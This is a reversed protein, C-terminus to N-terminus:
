TCIIRNNKLTCKLKAINREVKKCNMNQSSFMGALKQIILDERLGRKLLKIYAFAGPELEFFRVTLTKPDRYILVNTPQKVIKALKTLKGSKIVNVILPISYEFRCIEYIPNLLFRGVKRGNIEVTEKEYVKLELWEYLALESIFPYRKLINKQQSLYTPFHEAVRNLIPSTPPDAELYAPLLKNWENKLVKRTYPYINSVVDSLSNRVLERYVKVKDVLKKPLKLKKRIQDRKNWYSDFLILDKIGKQLERTYTLDM